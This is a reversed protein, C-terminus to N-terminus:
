KCVAARSHNRCVLKKLSEFQVQQQKLSTQQQRIQTQQHNLRQQQQEIARQQQGIQQQQEKVANVLVTTVQGYKVGEIEGKDNRTTLLPEVKEVEEAGFGVDHMGGDKWTFAIPRLRRVIDLGGSFSQVNSKYRLSSSCTSINHSANRCLNTGGGGSSGLTGLQLFGDISANTSVHLGFVDVPQAVYLTGLISVADSGDFRGLVISNSVGVSAGAGIATAHDLNNSSVDAGSGILTNFNGTTNSDGTGAGVFTNNGGSTSFKGANSGFFTNGNATSQLGAEFGFFANSGGAINQTGANKGFFANQLGGTNSAGAYNGFFSNSSATNSFGAEYGFFANDTADTNASGALRGFFSNRTGTTNSAGASSGFFSNSVGTQNAQGTNYGFFANDTGSTNSDGSGSGFFSNFSATNVRGARYGFFSNDNASVNADGASVGFFSDRTGTTNSNGAFAGFFSNDSATNVTGATSGFFSNNGSTTNFRGASEGFFSNNSGTTNSVGALRGAFVGSSSGLSLAHNIGINFQTTARVINASLTGGLTGNGSINFDASQTSITNQIYNGSGAPVSAVPIPGTVASGAVSGVQTSTVCGVCASSLVDAVSANLSRVSYPTSTVAQRPSLLTYPDPSGALRVGLELFRPLGSFVGAGFDLQVTFIGATVPVSANTITPGQQTGTGVTATDFLKFQIDYSGNAPSAGDSLKGQYTFATTQAFTVNVSVIFLMLAILIRVRKARM